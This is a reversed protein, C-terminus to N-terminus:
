SIVQHMATKSFEPAPQPAAEAAPATAPAPAAQQAQAEAEMVAAAEQQMQATVEAWAEALTIGKEKKIQLTLGIIDPTVEPTSLWKELLIRAIEENQRREMEGRADPVIGSQEIVTEGALTGVTYFNILRQDANIRDLGAGAGYEIRVELPGEGIDRSPLYDKRDGVLHPLPKVVNLREDKDLEGSCRTLDEQLSSLMRQRERVISTLQGQTATLYSASGQSVPSDGQRTAPYGLQGRQETELFQLLGFLEGNFSAPAIRRMFTEGELSPNHHYRTDPGPDEKWNVIGREEWPAYIAEHAYETILSVLRNKTAMPKGIQDLTGHFEGTPSPVMAFGVTVDECGTFERSIVSVKGPDTAAGNSGTRAVAKANYGPGYYDMLTVDDTDSLTDFQSFDHRPFLHRATRLKMSQIVLLDVLRGNYTDPYAFLPDIREWRPLHRSPDVWACVFCAGAVDLDMSLYPKILDFRNFEAYGKAIAAKVEANLDGKDGKKQIPAHYSPDIESVLRATDRPMQDALNTVQMPAQVRVGDPNTYGIEGRVMQRALDIRDKWDGLTETREDHYHALYEETERDDFVKPSPM